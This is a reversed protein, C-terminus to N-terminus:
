KDIGQSDFCMLILLNCCAHALHHIKSEKDDKEGCWWAVIHRLTAGFYRRRGDKVEKWNDPSYKKAGYTFVDVVASMEQFPVLDWRQKDYDYKRGLENEIQTKPKRGRKAM